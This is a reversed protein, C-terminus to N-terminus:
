LLYIVVASSASHWHYSLLSIDCCRIQENLSRFRWIRTLVSATRRVGIAFADVNVDEGTLGDSKMENWDCCISFLLKKIFFRVNLKSKSPTDSTTIQAVNACKLLFDFLYIWDSKKLHVGQLLACRHLSESTM